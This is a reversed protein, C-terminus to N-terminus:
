KVFYYNKINLLLNFAVKSVKAHEGKTGGRPADNAITYKLNEAKLISEVTSMASYASTYKGSGSYYGTYIKNNKTDFHCNALMGSINKSITGSATTILKKTAKKMNTTNFHNQLIITLETKM